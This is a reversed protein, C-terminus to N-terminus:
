KATPLGAALWASLGGELTVAEAFGLKKLSAAGAAGRIGKDCVVIVPKNKYKQLEAARADIEKFPINRANLIHGRAYDEADRIDVVVADQKNMMMTANLPSVAGSGGRRLM